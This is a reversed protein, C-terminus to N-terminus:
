GKASLLENILEPHEAIFQLLVQKDPTVAESDEKLYDEEMKQVINSQEEQYTKSYRIVMDPEAWGGATM